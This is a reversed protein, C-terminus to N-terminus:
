VQLSPIQGKTRKGDVFLERYHLPPVRLSWLPLLAWRVFQLLPKRGDVAVGVYGHAEREVWLSRVQTLVTERLQAPSATGPARLGWSEAPQALGGPDCDRPLVPSASPLRPRRAPTGM